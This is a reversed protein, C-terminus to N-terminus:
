IKMGGAQCAVVMEAQAEDCNIKGASLLALHKGIDSDESQIGEM